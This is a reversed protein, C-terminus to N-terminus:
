RRSVSEDVWRLYAESSGSVPMVLFEPTEYPHIQHLRVKLSEVLDATTEILLLQEEDQEISGKWRYISTLGPVVNVCAALREEVLTRAIASADEDGALTTLVVVISPDATSTV